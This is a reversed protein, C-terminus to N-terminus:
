QLEDDVKHPSDTSGTITKEIYIHVGDSQTLEWGNAELADLKDAFHRVADAHTQIDLPPDKLPITDYKTYYHIRKTYTHGSTTGCHPCTRDQQTFQDSDGSHRTEWSENCDGCTFWPEYSISFEEGDHEITMTPLATM